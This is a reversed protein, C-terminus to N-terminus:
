SFAFICMLLLKLLPHSRSAGRTCHTELVTRERVNKQGFNKRWLIRKLKYNEYLYYFSCIHLTFHHHLLVTIVLWACDLLYLPSNGKTLSSLFSEQLVWSQLCPSPNEPPFYLQQTSNKKRSMLQTDAISQMYEVPYFLVKISLYYYLHGSM